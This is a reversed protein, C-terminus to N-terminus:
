GGMPLITWRIVVRGPTHSRGRRAPKRGAAVGIRRPRALLLGSLPLIRLGRQQLLVSLRGSRRGRGRRASGRRRGGRRGCGAGL